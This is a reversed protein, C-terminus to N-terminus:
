HQLYRIGCTNCASVYGGNEEQVFLMKGCSSCRGIRIGTGERETERRDIRQAEKRVAEGEARQRGLAEGASEEATETAEGASERQKPVEGAPRGSSETMKGDLPRIEELDDMLGFLSLQGDDDFNDFMQIDMRLGERHAEACVSLLYIIRFRLEITVCNESRRM